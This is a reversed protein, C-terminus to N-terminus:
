WNVSRYMRELSDSTNLNKWVKKFFKRLGIFSMAKRNEERQDISTHGTLDGVSESSTSEMRIELQDSIM